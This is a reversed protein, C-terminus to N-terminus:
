TREQADETVEDRRANEFAQAMREVDPMILGYDNVICYFEQLDHDIIKTEGTKENEEIHCLEHDVVCKKQEDTLEDWLPKCILMAVEIGHLLQDIKSRKIVRGIWKRPKDDYFYIIKDKKTRLHSHRAKEDIVSEALDRIDNALEM